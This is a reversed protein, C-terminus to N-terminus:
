KESLEVIGTWNELRGDGELAALKRLYFESPGDSLGRMERTHNMYDRAATFEGARFATLGKEFIEIWSKEGSEADCRCLLEHIVVSQTPFGTEWRTV